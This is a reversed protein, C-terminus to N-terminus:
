SVSSNHSNSICVTRGSEPSGPLVSPVIPYFLHTPAFLPHTTVKSGESLPQDHLKESHM